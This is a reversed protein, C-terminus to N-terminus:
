PKLEQLVRQLSDRWEPLVIGAEIQIRGQDLRSNLPRQAPTPFESSPTPTLEKVRLAFGLQRAQLFIEQAFGYWSVFGQGALHYVGSLSNKRIVIETVAAALDRASTPSGVQDDVIRLSEKEMALRLMSKVFNSGTASYVWSTRLIIHRCGSAAIAREGELKTQGYINLPGTPDSEKWPRDGAGSFVYDTSFHILTAHHGKAWAAIVAPATANLRRAKEPHSQAKDVATDAATNIIWAPQYRDLTQTLRDLNEFDCETQSVFNWSAAVPLKRLESAVQGLKGFVLVGSM